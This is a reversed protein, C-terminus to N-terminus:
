ISANILSDRVHDTNLFSQGAKMATACVECEAISNVNNVSETVQTFWEDIITAKSVALVSACAFSLRSFSM